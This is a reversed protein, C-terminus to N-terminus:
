PTPDAVIYLKSIATDQYKSGAYVDEIVFKVWHARVPPEIQLSQEDMSDRLTVNRSQGGSFEIRLRRVRGNKQFIDRNKQYGNRIVIRRITQPKQLDISVAEGIGPGERGEVWATGADNGFLNGVDYDNGFQPPLMSTACYTETNTAGRLTACTEGAMRPRSATAAPPLAAVQQAPIQSASPSAVPTAEQVPLAANGRPVLVVDGILSSHDWPVQQEGTARVVDARVRKMVSGIEIGPTTVHRLLAATFPSNRGNGDLAVNNPQTAFSIMTGVASHVVALGNGVAASRTGLSRALSRSLPNNRCADLFVLNVRKATEMQDLVQSVAVTEFSLDGARELRADVPVLYNTGEVQLGHGAYFFLALKAHDLKRSFERVKEVMGAKDLDRGEVVDFGLERLVRAFDAADNSPNPLEAAHRYAGNGIVLAVREAANAGGAALAATVVVLALIGSKIMQRM